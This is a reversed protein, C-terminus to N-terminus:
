ATKVNKNELSNIYNLIQENINITNLELYREKDKFVADSTVTNALFRESDERNPNTRLYADTLSVQISPLSSKTTARLLNHNALDNAKKISVITDVDNIRKIAETILNPKNQAFAQNLTDVGVIQGMLNAYVYEDSEFYDSSASSGSLTNALIERYGKNLARYEESDFGNKHFINLIIDSYINELAIDNRNFYKKNIILTNNMPNYNYSIVTKDIPSAFEVNLNKIQEIDFNMSSYEIYSKGWEILDNKISMTDM